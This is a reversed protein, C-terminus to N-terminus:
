PKIHMWNKLEWIYKRETGFFGRCREKAYAITLYRDHIPIKYENCVIPDGADNITLYDNSEWIVPLPESNQKLLEIRKEIAKIDYININDISSLRVKCSNTEDQIVEERKLILYRTGETISIKYPNINTDFYEKKIDIPIENYFTSVFVEKSCLEEAHLKALWKPMYNVRREFYQLSDKAADHYKYAYFVENFVYRIYYPVEDDTIKKIGSKSTRHAIRGTLLIYNNDELKLAYHKKDLLVFEPNKAAYRM